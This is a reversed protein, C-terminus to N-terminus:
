ANKPSVISPSGGTIGPAQTTTTFYSHTWRDGPTQYAHCFDPYTKQLMGLYPDEIDVYRTGAGDTSWGGIAVFHAGAGRGTWAIRCGLPRGANVEAQVDPFSTPNATMRDFHGVRALADDLHWAQNCRATDGADVGCCAWSHRAFEATVILCQTWTGTGFLDAVSAAIAAWCWYDQLQTQMTFGAIARGSPPMGGPSFHPSLASPLSVSPKLFPPLPM